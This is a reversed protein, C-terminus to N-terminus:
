RAKKKKGTAAAAAVKKKGRVKKMRGKMEKLQKRTKKKKDQLKDRLLNCKTDCKKRLDLSDYICAFGSSRGGGYKSKLGFISIHEAKSKFLSALKEKLDAKSINGQDPHIIDIMIQKRCLLPNNVIKRAHLVFKGVTM